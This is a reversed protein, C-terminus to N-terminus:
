VTSMSVRTESHYVPPQILLQCTKDIVWRTSLFFIPKSSEWANISPPVNRRQVYRKRELSHADTRLTCCNLRLGGTLKFIFSGHAVSMRHWSLAAYTCHIAEYKRNEKDNKSHQRAPYALQTYRYIKSWEPTCKAKMNTRFVCNVLLKIHSPSFDARWACLAM